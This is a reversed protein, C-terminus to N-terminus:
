FIVTAAICIACLFYPRMPRLAHPHQTERVHDRDQPAPALTSHRPPDPDQPEDKVPHLSHNRARDAATTTDVDGSLVKLGLNTNGKPPATSDCGRIRNAEKTQRKAILPRANSTGLSFLTFEFVHTQV